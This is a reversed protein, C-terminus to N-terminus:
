EKEISKIINIFEEPSQILLEESNKYDSTNRTVIVDIGFSCSSYYQIADELDTFTSNLAMDINKEVIPIIRILIRLKRLLEKAKENGVSKRLIYFVNSFVLSSTYLDLQGYDGFTFIEAAAPYFPQRKSLLDLIVDSDIFVKKNM